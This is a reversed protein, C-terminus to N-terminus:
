TDKARTRYELPSVGFWSKFARSFSSQDNFNLSLAIQALSMSHNQIYVQALDRRCSKLLERFSTNEDDLRRRLTRDSLGMSRAIDSISVPKKGLEATIQSKVTAILDNPNNLAKLKQDLQVRLQKLMDANRGPLPQSLADIHFEIENREAGFMVSEGFILKYFEINDPQARQFRMAKLPPDDTWLLWRGISFYGAFIAEIFLDIGQSDYNHPKWVCRASTETRILTTTGVQQILPQYIINLEIAHGLDDCFTLAYIGDINLEPRLNLGFKLGIAPDNTHEYSSNLLEFMIDAPYRRTQDDLGATGDKGLDPLVDKPVGFHLATM